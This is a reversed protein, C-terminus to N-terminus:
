VKEGVGFRVLVRFLGVNEMGLRLCDNNATIAAQVAGNAQATPCGVGSTASMMSM